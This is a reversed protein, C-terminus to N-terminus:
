KFSAHSQEKKKKLIDIVDFSDVDFSYFLFCSSLSAKFSIQTQRSKFDDHLENDKKYTNLFM